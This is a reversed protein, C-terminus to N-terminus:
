VNIWKINKDRKMFTYQKKAYHVESLTWKSILQQKSIKGAIFEAIEKCGNTKLGPDSLKYGKKLLQDLEEVAGQALRKEVRQKIASTLQEKSRFRLALLSFPLNKRSSLHAACRASDRLLLNSMSSSAIEIKRMLRRPNNRDSENLKEFEALNIKKLMKQLQTVSKKKLKKRLKFNPEIKETEIGYLLHSIYLYTGGVIIPTKGRKLLDKIIKEVRIKFDYSSFYEKPDILDYLYIPTKGIERKDKGTIIDLYKYIQRSDASILEGNLKQAYELALKTKGTATQGTIVLVKKM